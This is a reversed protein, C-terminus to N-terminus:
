CMFKRLEIEGNDNMVRSHGAEMAYDMCWPADLSAYPVASNVRSAKLEYSFRFFNSTFKGVFLDCQSLLLAVVSAMRAGQENQGTHQSEINDHLIQDWNNTKHEAFLRQDNENSGGWFIWKYQPYQFTEILVDNSDTTLFITKVGTDRRMEDVRVM